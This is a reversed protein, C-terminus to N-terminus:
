QQKENPLELSDIFHIASKKQERWARLHNAQDYTISYLLGKDRFKHACHPSRVFPHSQPSCIMVDTLHGSADRALYVQAHLVYEEDRMHYWREVDLGAFRSAPEIKPVFKKRSEVIENLAPESASQRISIDNFQTNGRTEEFAPSDSLEGRPIDRPVSSYFYIASHNRKSSVDTPTYTLPIEFTRGGIEVTASQEDADEARRKRTPLGLAELSQRPKDRPQIVHDPSHETEFSDIFLVASRQQERWAHLYRKKNYHILYRLGGDRFRHSCGPFKVSPRERTSCEIWSIVQGDSNKELFVEYYFILQGDYPQYWREAELGDLGTTTLIKPIHSRRNAVMEDFSPQAANPELLMHGFHGAKRAREYEGKSAFEARSTFDPLVYLLNVGDLQEREGDLNSQIYATPM